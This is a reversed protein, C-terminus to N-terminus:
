ILCSILPTYGNKLSLLRANIPIISYIAETNITTTILVQVVAYICKNIQKIFHTRLFHTLAFFNMCKHM